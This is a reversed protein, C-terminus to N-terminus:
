ESHDFKTVLTSTWLNTGELPASGPIQAYINSVSVQDGLVYTTGTDIIADQNSVSIANGNVLIADFTTQWYGQIM